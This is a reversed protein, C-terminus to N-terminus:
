DTRWTQTLAALSDIQRNLEDRSAGSRAAVSVSIAFGVLIDTYTGVLASDIEGREGAVTLAAGLRSGLLERYRAALDAARDDRLGLETCANVALCGRAGGESAVEVRMFGIFTDIQEIGGGAELAGDLMQMRFDMYRELVTFFLEDKSGFTNYLSSKNLGAAAVIDSLSADEYGREWFLDVLSDLVQEEDFERPRGVSRKSGAQAM